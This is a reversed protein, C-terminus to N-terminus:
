RRGIMVLLILSVLGFAILMLLNILAQNGTPTSPQTEEAGFIDPIPIGNDEPPQVESEFNFSSNCAVLAISAILLLLIFFIKQRLMVDDYFSYERSADMTLPINIEAV